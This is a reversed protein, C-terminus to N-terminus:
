KGKVLSKIKVEEFRYKQSVEPYKEHDVESAFMKYPRVYKKCDDYLAEYIVVKELTESDIAFDLVIYNNGKFNKYITNKKIERM